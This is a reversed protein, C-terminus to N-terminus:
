VATAPSVNGANGAVWLKVYRALPGYTFQSYLGSAWSRLEICTPKVRMSPLLWIAFVTPDIDILDRDSAFADSRYRISTAGLTKAMQSARRVPPRGSGFLLSVWLFLTHSLSYEKLFFIYLLNVICLPTEVGIDYGESWICKTVSFDINHFPLTCHYKPFNLM